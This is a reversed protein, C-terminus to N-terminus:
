GGTRNKIYRKLLLKVREAFPLLVDGADIWSIRFFYGYSRTIHWILKFFVNDPLKIALGIFPLLRKFEVGLSFLRSLNSLRTKEALDLVSTEYFSDHLIEKDKSYYGKKVAYDTLEIGPYPQFLSANAYSPRCLTNLKITQFAKAVTEGPLGLMNQIFFHINYKHMLRAASIIESESIRRKLVMNRLYSDGTEIAFTITIVGASKLAAVIEEDLLNVRVYCIFPLGIRKKYVDCFDLVWQKDLIFIDDFFQVRKLPATRKLEELEKIVNAISRKRCFLGKGRYIKKLSHNFCYTCNYPCGRSTLVYKNSRKRYSEYKYVLARDPFEINDINRELNRVPNSFVEKGKKVWINGIATIPQHKELKTALETLAAEGEGVCIADVGSENIFEPFFTAHPGGFVSFFRFREKLARNLGAYLRHTGTIISYAIIDPRLSDVFAFLGSDLFIDYFFTEHGEKKLASSLGMLGIPEIYNYKYIFLIRM